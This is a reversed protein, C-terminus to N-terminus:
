ARITGQICIYVNCVCLIIYRLQKHIILYLNHQIKFLSKKNVHLMARQCLSKIFFINSKKYYFSGLTWTFKNVVITLRTMCNRLAQRFIYHFRQTYQLTCSYIIRNFVEAVSYVRVHMDIFTVM